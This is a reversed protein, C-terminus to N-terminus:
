RSRPEHNLMCSLGTENSARRYWLTSGCSPCIHAIAAYVSVANRRQESSFFAFQCRQAKWQRVCISGRCVQDSLCQSTSVDLRPFFFSGCLSASVNLCQSSGRSSSPGVFLRQSMSVNLCQAREPPTHELKWEAITVPRTEFCERSDHMRFCQQNGPRHSSAGVIEPARSHKCVTSWCTKSPSSVISKGTM